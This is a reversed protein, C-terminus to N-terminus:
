ESSRGDTGAGTRASPHRLRFVSAFVRQMARDGFSGMFVLNSALMIFFPVTAIKSLEYGCQEGHMYFTMSVASPIGIWIGTNPHRRAETQKM